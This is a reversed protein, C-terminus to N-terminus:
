GAPRLRLRPPPVAVLYARQTASHQVTRLRVRVVLVRDLVDTDRTVQWTMAHALVRASDTIIASRELRASATQTTDHYRRAPHADALHVHLGFLRLRDLVRFFVLLSDFSTRRAQECEHQAHRSGHTHSSHRETGQIQSDGQTEKIASDSDHRRQSTGQGWYKSTGDRNM